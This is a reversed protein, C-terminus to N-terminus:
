AGIANRDAFSAIERAGSSEKSDPLDNGSVESRDHDLMQLDPNQFLRM